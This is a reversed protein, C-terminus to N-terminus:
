PFGASQVSYNAQLVHEEHILYNYFFYYGNPLICATDVKTSNVEETAWTLKVQKNSYFWNIFHKHLQPAIICLFWGPKYHVYNEKITYRVTLMKHLQQMLEERIM